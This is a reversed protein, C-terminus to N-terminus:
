KLMKYFQQQLQQRVEILFEMDTVNGQLNDLSTRMQLKCTPTFSTVTPKCACDANIDTDTSGSCIINPSDYEEQQQNYGSPGAVPVESSEASLLHEQRNLREMEKLQREERNRLKRTVAIDVTGIMM